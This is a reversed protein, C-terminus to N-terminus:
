SHFSYSDDQGRQAFLFYKPHPQPGRLAKENRWYAAALDGNSHVSIEVFAYHNSALAWGALYGLANDFHRVQEGYSPVYNPSNRIVITRM